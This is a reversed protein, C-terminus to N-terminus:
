AAAKAHAAEKRKIMADAREYLDMPMHGIDGIGLANCFATVDSDTAALRAKIGAAHEESIITTTVEHSESDADGAGEVPICFVEFLFYKYAATCAKNISKDGRDMAEGPFTHAISDGHEDYLTFEMTVTTHNMSGGKATQVARSERDKVSPALIVGHHAFIPALANLVADIGRFKYKDFTNTDNKAIGKAAIDRQVGTLAKFITRESM